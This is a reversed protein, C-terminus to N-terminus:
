RKGRAMVSSSRMFRKLLPCNGMGSPRVRKIQWDLGGAPADSKRSAAPTKPIEKWRPGRSFHGAVALRVRGMWKVDDPRPPSDPFLSDAPALYPPFSLKRCRAARITGPFSPTTCLGPPALPESRFLGFLRQLMLDPNTWQARPHRGPHGSAALAPIGSQLRAPFRVGDAAPRDTRHLPRPMASGCGPRSCPKTPSAARARQYAEGRAEPNDAAGLDVWGLSVPDPAPNPAGPHHARLRALDASARADGAVAAEKLHIAALSALGRRYYVWGLVGDVAASEPALDRAKEALHLAQEPM